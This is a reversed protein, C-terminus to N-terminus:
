FRGYNNRIMNYGAAALGGYALGVNAMKMVNDTFRSRKRTNYAPGMNTPFSRPIRIVRRGFKSRFRKGM